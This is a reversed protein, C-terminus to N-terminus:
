AKRIDSLPIRMTYGMDMDDEDEDETEFDCEDHMMVSVLIQIPENKAQFYFDDIEYDIVTGKFELEDVLAIVKQGKLKDLANM